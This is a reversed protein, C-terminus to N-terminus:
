KNTSLTQVAKTLAEVQDKLSKLETQQKEIVAQQEQLAKVLPVVFSAYSLSYFGKDTQPKNVGDFNFHLENAAKEVEQAIFGTRRGLSSNVLSAYEGVQNSGIPKGSFQYTVPRLKLIFDLGKVDEAVNSKFRADSLTSFSGASEVVTVDGNGIRVKNSEDVIAEFGIATANSLDGASVNAHVGIGTNGSGTTNTLM